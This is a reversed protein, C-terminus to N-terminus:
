VMNVQKLILLASRYELVQLYNYYCTNVPDYGCYDTVGEQITGYMQIVEDNHTLGGVELLLKKQRLLFLVQWAKM